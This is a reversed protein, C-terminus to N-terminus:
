RGHLLNLLKTLFCVGIQRVRANFIRSQREQERKRRADIIAAEKHDIPLDLKHM